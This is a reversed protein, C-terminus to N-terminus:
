TANMKSPIGKRQKEIAARLNNAKIVYTDELLRRNKGGLMM